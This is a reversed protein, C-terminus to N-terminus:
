NQFSLFLEQPRLSSNLAKPLAYFVQKFDNGWFFHVNRICMAVFPSKITNIDVSLYIYLRLTYISDIIGWTIKTMDRLYTYLLLTEKLKLYSIYPVIKLIKKNIRKKQPPPWGAGGSQRMLTPFKPCKECKNEVTQRPGTIPNLRGM